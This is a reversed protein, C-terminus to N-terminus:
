KQINVYYYKCTSMPDNDSSPKNVNGGQNPSFLASLFSNDENTGSGSGSGSIGSLFNNVTGLTPGIGAIAM